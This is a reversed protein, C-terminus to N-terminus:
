RISDRLTELWRLPGSATPRQAFFLGMDGFTGTAQRESTVRFGAAELAAVLVDLSFQGCGPIRAHAPPEARLEHYEGVIRDIQGLRKSTLLIPFEAGECDIKLLNIRRKGNETVSLIVDDLAVTEVLPGDTEWIVTGGGANASDGSPCFHLTSTRVDSRWVARNSLHVREGFPALNRVACQYNAPEAEFGFVAEAGRCLALYSFLGVHVGIDIVITRSPFREPLRYENKKVVSTYIVDDNTGPRLDFPLYGPSRPGDPM